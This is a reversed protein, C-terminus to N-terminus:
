SKKERHSYMDYPNERKVISQYRKQNIGRVKGTRVKQVSRKIAQNKVSSTLYDGPFIGASANRMLNLIIRSFNRALRSHNAYDSSSYKFPVQRKANSKDEWSTVLRQKAFSKKAAEVYQKTKVKTGSTNLPLYVEKAYRYYYSFQSAQFEDTSLAFTGGYVKKVKKQNANRKDLEEDYMRQVIKSVTTPAYTYPIVLYLASDDVVDVATMKRLTSITRFLHKHGAWWKTFSLNKYDGWPEYLAKSQKLNKIVVEDQSLQALKLFEFWLQIKRKLPINM